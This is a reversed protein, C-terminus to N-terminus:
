NTGPVAFTSSIAFFLEVNQNNIMYIYTEMFPQQSIVVFQSDTISRVSDAIHWSDFVFKRFFFKDISFWGCTVIDCSLASWFLSLLM